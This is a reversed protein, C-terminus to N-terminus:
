FKNNAISNNNFKIIIHACCLDRHQYEIIKLLKFFKDFKNLKKIFILLKKSFIEHCIDLRDYVTENSQLKEIIEPWSPDCKINLSILM